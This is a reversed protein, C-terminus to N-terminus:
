KKRPHKRVVTKGKLQRTVNRKSSSCPAIDTGDDWVSPHDCVEVVPYPLSLLVKRVHPKLASTCANLILSPELNRIRTKFDEQFVLQGSQSKHRWLGRWTANRITHRMGGREGDADKHILRHLSTQFQIPNCLVVKAKTKVVLKKAALAKTVIRVLHKTFRTQSASDMLPEKPKFAGDLDHYEDEHPSELVVVIGGKGPFPHKHCPKEWKPNGDNWTARVADRVKTRYALQGNPLYIVNGDERRVNTLDEWETPTSRPYSHYMVQEAQRQRLGVSAHITYKAM